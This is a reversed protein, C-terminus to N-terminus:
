SEATFEAKKEQNKKSCFAFLSFAYPSVELPPMISKSLITRIYQFTTLDFQVALVEELLRESLMKLLECKYKAKTKNKCNNNIIM